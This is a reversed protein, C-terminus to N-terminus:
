VQTQKQMRWLLLPYSLLFPIKKLFDAVEIVQTQEPLCLHNAFIKLVTKDFYIDRCWFFIGNKKCSWFVAFMSLYIFFM